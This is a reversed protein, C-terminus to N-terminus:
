NVFSFHIVDFIENIEKSKPLVDRILELYRRNKIYSLTPKFNIDFIWGVQLLKIDNLNKIHTIDVITKNM